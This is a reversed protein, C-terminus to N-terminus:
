TGCVSSSAKQLCKLSEQASNLQSIVALCLRVYLDPTVRCHRGLFLRKALKICAYMYGTCMYILTLTGLRLLWVVRDPSKHCVSLFPALKLVKFLIYSSEKLENNRIRLRCQVLRIDCKQLRRCQPLLSLKDGWGTLNLACLTGSNEPYRQKVLNRVFWFKDLTNKQCRCRKSRYPTTESRHTGPEFGTQPVAM